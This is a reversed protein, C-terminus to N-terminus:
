TPDYITQPCHTSRHYPSGCDACVDEEEINETLPALWEHYRAELESQSAKRPDREYTKEYWELFSEAAERGDLMWGNENHASFVPGFTWGSTNCFFAAKDEESDYIIETAM